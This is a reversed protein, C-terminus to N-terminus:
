VDRHAGCVILVDANREETKGEQIDLLTNWAYDLGMGFCQISNFKFSNFENNFGKAKLEGLCTQIKDLDEKLKDTAQLLGLLRADMM